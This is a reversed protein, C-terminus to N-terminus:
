QLVMDKVIHATTLLTIDKGKLTSYLNIMTKRPISLHRKIEHCCDCDATIKSGLFIFDLVAELNEGEIQRLTIPCYVMSKTKQINLKLGAQFM